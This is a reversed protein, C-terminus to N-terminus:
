CWTSWWHSFLGVTSEAGTTGSYFMPYNDYNQVSRSVNRLITLILRTLLISAFPLLPLLYRDWIPIATLFHFSMYAALFLFLIQDGFSHFTLRFITSSTILVLGFIILIGFGTGAFILKWYDFWEVIRPILEWSWSWRIGGFATIQHDWIAFGGTRAREWFILVCLVLTVGAIFRIWSKKDWNQRVAIAGLIPLGFAAQFKTVIALGFLIGSVFIASSQRRTVVSDKHSTEKKCSKATNIAVITMSSLLLAVMLPDTFGTSSNQIALPSLTVFAASLVSVTKQHFLGWAFGSTLPILVISAFLNPIRAAWDQYDTLWLFLAQFYFQLPPKDVLQNLLLPDKGSAIQKAWTAYLAEDSHFTNAFLGKFRFWAALLVLSLLWYKIQKLRNIKSLYNTPRYITTM